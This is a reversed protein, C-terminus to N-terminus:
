LIGYQIRFGTHEVAFSSTCRKTTIQTSHLSALCCFSSSSEVRGYIWRLVTSSM